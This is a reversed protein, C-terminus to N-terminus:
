KGTSRARDSQKLLRGMGHSRYEDVWPKAGTATLLLPRKQAMTSSKIMSRKTMMEMADQLHFMFLASPKVMNRSYKIKTTSLTINSSRMMIQGTEIQVHSCLGERCCANAELTVRLLVTLGYM